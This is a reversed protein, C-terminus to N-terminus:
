RRSFQIAVSKNVINRPINFNRRTKYGYLPKPVNVPQKNVETNKNYRYTYENRIYNTRSNKVWIGKNINVKFNSYTPTYNKINLGNPGKVGYAMTFMKKTSPEVIRTPMKLPDVKRAKALETQYSFRVKRPKQTLMPRVKRKVRSYLSEFTGTVDRLGVVHRAFSIMRDKDKKKKTMRLGLKQMLYLDDLFFRKGAINSGFSDKSFDNIIESGFENMRMFAIDLVGGLNQSQVKGTEINFYKTNMDIAFLEVDILTNGSSVKNITGNTRSKMMLTYRRKLLVGTKPITLGLMKAPKYKKIKELINIRFKNEIKLIIKNLKDWFNIKLIQLNRFLHEGEFLPIFKTDIDSTVIRHEIDVFSNFAEGGSIILEGYTRLFKTIEPIVEKRMVTRVCDTVIVYVINQVERRTAYKKLLTRYKTVDNENYAKLLEKQNLCVNEKEFKQITKSSYYNDDM